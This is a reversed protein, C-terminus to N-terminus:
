CLLTCTYVDEHRAAYAAALDCVACLADPFGTAEVQEILWFHLPGSGKNTKLFEKSQNRVEAEPLGSAAAEDLLAARSHPAKSLMQRLLDVHLRESLVEELGSAQLFISPYPATNAEDLFAPDSTNDFLAITRLGSDYFFQCLKHIDGNTDASVISIGQLELAELKRGKWAQSNMANSVGMLWWRDSDGEVVIVGRGMLAECHVQRLRKSYLNIQKVKSTTLPRWKVQGAQNEVRGVGEVPTRELVFPSHTTILTQSALSLCEDIVRRQAHPYLFTEPEELALIGGQRRRMILTLIALVSLSRSGAGMKQIPKGCGSSVYLQSASKVQDRTSDTLEFRLSPHEDGALPLFREVEAKYSALLASFDSEQVMPDLANRVGELAEEFHKPRVEQSLLLTSFLNGAELTIPRTLARFDRYILFGIHRKQQKTFAPCEERKLDKARLFFTGSKFEDEEADYWGDFFVRIASVADAFPDVGEETTEIVEQQEPKWPVLNERFVDEDTANMGAIVLEVRIHPAEGGDDPLYKREYFDNEDITKWRAGAEPNLALNIAELIATKGINNPGLLVSNKVPHIVAHQICRFNRIEIKVIQM